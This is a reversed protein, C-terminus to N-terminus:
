KEKTIETITATGGTLSEIAATIAAIKDPAIQQRSGISIPAPALPAFRNVLLIMIKGGAVVLSLIAFVTIMGIAMIMLGFSVDENM